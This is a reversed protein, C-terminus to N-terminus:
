LISCPFSSKPTPDETVSTHNFVLDGWESSNNEDESLEAEFSDYNVDNLENEYGDDHDTQDKKEDTTVIEGHRIRDMKQGIPATILNWLMIATAIIAIDGLLGSFIEIIELSVSQTVFIALFPIHILGFTSLGILVALAVFGVTLLISQILNIQFANPIKWLYLRLTEKGGIEHVTNAIKAIVALLGLGSCVQSAILGVQLAVTGALFIHPFVLISIFGLLFLTFIILNLIAQSQSNLKSRGELSWWEWFGQYHWSFQPKGPQDTSTTIEKNYENDLDEM